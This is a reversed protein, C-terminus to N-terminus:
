GPFHLWSKSSTSLMMNGIKVFFPKLFSNPEVAEFIRNQLRLELSLDHFGSAGLRLVATQFNILCHLLFDNSKKCTYSAMQFHPPVEKVKLLVFM